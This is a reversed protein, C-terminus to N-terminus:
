LALTPLILRPAAHTTASIRGYYQPLGTPETGVLLDAVAEAYSSVALPLPSLLAHSHSSKRGSSTATTPRYMRALLPMTHPFPEWHAM